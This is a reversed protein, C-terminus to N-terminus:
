NVIRELKEELEKKLIKLDGKYTFGAATKHGGGGYESALEQVSVDNRSRLSVKLIGGEREKIMATAKVNKITLGYDVFENTDEEKAGHNKLMNKTVYMISFKDHLTINQLVAGLLKIRVPPDTFWIFESVQSAVVGYNVLKSAVRLSHSTTNPYRFSGTDTLIGIYLYTAIEEDLETLRNLLEYIIEATSSYYPKVINIDGFNKNSIHHDINIIPKTFDIKDKIFGIRNLEASDLAFIVEEDFDKKDTHILNIRKFRSYRDTPPDENYIYAKKGIKLLGLALAIQSGISDGDPYKHSVILFKNYKKIIDIAKKM